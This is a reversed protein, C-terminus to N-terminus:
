AMRLGRGRQKQRTLAAIENALAQVDQKDNVIFTNGTVTVNSESTYTRNNSGGMAGGKAEGTLYRSASKIAAAQKKAEDTFGKGFGKMAMAGIENEFVRSPSHIDLEQKAANVAARAADKMATIVGSRGAIIGNRFGAMVNLGQAYMVRSPSHMDFAKPFIERSAAAAGEMAGTLQSETDTVAQAAGPLINKASEATDTELQKMAEAAPETQTVLQALAEVLGYTNTLDDENVVGSETLTALSKKLPSDDKLLGSEDLKKTIADIEALVNKVRGQAGRDIAVQKSWSLGDSIDIGFQKLKDTLETYRELDDITIGGQELISLDIGGHAAARASEIADIQENLADTQEKLKALQADKEEDSEGETTTAYVEELAKRESEIEKKKREALIEVYEIAKQQDSEDGYGLRTKEYALKYYDTQAATVQQVKDATEGLSDLLANLTDIEEDTMARNNACLAAVYATVAEAKGTLDGKLADAQGTLKAIAQNYTDEDILGAAFQEDLSSKKAALSEDILNYVEQVAEDVDAQMGERIEQTEPLGDNLIGIFKEKLSLIDGSVTVNTDVDIDAELSQADIKYSDIESKDISLDPKADELKKFHIILAAIAATAAAVGAVLMGGSGLLTILATAASGTAKFAAGAEGIRQSLKGFTRIAGTATTGIRGTVKLAPGIAAAYLGWTVINRRTADDLSGFWKVADGLGKVVTEIEPAMTDAFEIGVAILSNKINTLKSATTQLRTDSETMLATNEEWAVNARALADSILDTANASRLLTDSLRLETIGIEDLTAIAGVGEDNMQGLGVIFAQFAEAPNNKWMEAFQESTMGAVRAFDNLASSGTAVATEMKRLAKSFASGGAESELGLSSLAASFGLIQPETLGVQKGAAGIRTAMAMIDAETTAFSNGLDVLTAGMNSFKSQAMGTINAFKAMASAAEEGALNTSMGLRVITETFSELEDNEIGLQGAIAMVESIDAAGTALRKSMDIVSDSLKAFFAEADGSTVSVTKKVGAFADEYDIGAKAAAAGAALIPTTITKTLKGGFQSVAESAGHAKDAWNQMAVGYKYWANENKNLEDGTEKMAAKQENLAATTNTIAYQTSGLKEAYKDVGSALKEIEKEQEKYLKTQDALKENLAEILLPDGGQEAQKLARRTQEIADKYVLLDAKAERYQASIREYETYQEQQRKNLTNLKGTLASVNEAQGKLTKRLMEAKADVGKLTKEFDKVGAGALKFESEAQRIEKNVLRIAKDFKGSDLYLSVVLSRVSDSM